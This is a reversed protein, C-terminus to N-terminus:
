MHRRIEYVKRARTMALEYITKVKEFFVLTSQTWKLKNCTGCCAACNGTIYGKANDVRDIGNAAKLGCYVCDSRLLGTYEDECIAVEHRASYDKWNKYGRKVTSKKWTQLSYLQLDNFQIVDQCSQIFQTQSLTGKMYNCTSCCSVINDITYQKTSDVRDVGGSMKTGCYFCPMSSINMIEDRNVSCELGRRKLNSFLFTTNFWALQQVSTQANKRRKQHRNSYWGLRKERYTQNQMKQARGEESIRSRRVNLLKKIFPTPKNHPSRLRGNNFTYGFTTLLDEIGRVGPPIIPDDM